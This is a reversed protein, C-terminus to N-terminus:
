SMLRRLRLEARRSMPLADVYGRVLVNSARGVRKVELVHHLNVIASRHIRAFSAPPLREIWERLSRHVLHHSGDVAVVRSYDGEAVVASIGAVRVFADRRGDSVLLWDRLDWARSRDSTEASEQPAPTPLASSGREVQRIRRLTASLRDPDVPKLLYDLAHVEFARVAYEDYATVFVLACRKPIEPVIAFGSERGLRIDLFVVDPPEREIAAVAGAIDEAEAVLSVAGDAALLRRLESRALSEDDVILACLGKM